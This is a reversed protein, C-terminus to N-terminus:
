DRIPVCSAFTTMNIAAVLRWLHSRCRHFPQTHGPSGGLLPLITGFALWRQKEHTVYLQPPPALAHRTGLRRPCKITEALRSLTSTVDPTLDWTRIRGTGILPDRTSSTDGRFRTVSARTCQPLTYDALRLDGSSVPKLSRETATSCALSAAHCDCRKM